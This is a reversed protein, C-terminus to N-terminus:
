RLTSGKGDFIDVSFFEANIKDFAAQYSKARGSSYYALGSEFAERVNESYACGSSIGAIGKPGRKNQGIIEKEASTQKRLLSYEKLGSQLYKRIIIWARSKSIGNKLYADKFEEKSTNQEALKMYTPGYANSVATVFGKRGDFHKRQIDTLADYDVIRSDEDKTLSVIGDEIDKKFAFFDRNILVLKEIDMQCLIIWEPSIHIIRFRQEDITIIDGVNIRLSDKM